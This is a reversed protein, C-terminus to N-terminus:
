SKGPALDGIVGIRIGLWPYTHNYFVNDQPQLGVASPWLQFAAANSIGGHLRRWVRGFDRGSPADTITDTWEVANGGQDLTGWPSTSRAQGVTGLSGQYIEPYTIPDLGLPNVTSCVDPQVQAPCWSPAPLGTDHYSALPQTAANTVDGTTPNLVTPSPASNDDDAFVGPNTPYKWYSHTGGGRPDYYAAKIWENQSPVVFGSDQTRTTDPRALDYMGRETRASLEVQYTVYSFSGSSSARKSILRGNNLSNVFRAAELFNAFGYPKHAWEPYAVSYHSGSGAGASFNIQGYKPWASSSETTEDYLGHRNRGGPDVTNLFAVWQEVTVELQGIEYPYRVGGVMLCDASTTPADACSRYVADTFPIIGVSRNGPAGVKATTVTIIAGGRSTASGSSRPEAAAASSGAMAPPALLASVGCTAIVARGLRTRSFAFHM